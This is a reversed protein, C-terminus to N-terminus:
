QADVRKRKFAETLLEKNITVPYKEKLSEIWNQERQKTALEQYGSSVEPTAEEFSKIHASDLALTKLICWGSQYQFPATVSDVAMQSAKRALDNATFPQLGWVGKKEKYGSRNTYEKAVDLSAAGKRINKYAAKILSDSLTYIEAFNVREPWRYEEKHVNYYERLLSDNVMVKKWVEDQEMRYLLIGEEYEKLLNKLVPYRETAHRAHDELAVVDLMKNALMWINNPTLSYNKLDNMTFLRNAFDHVTFPRESNLIMTMNLVDATLTDKWGEDGSIKNSDVSSIVKLVVSSDMHVHYLAKLGLVYNNNEYQYRVQKYQEKIDKQMEAFSPIGKKETLKFIHFGYNFQVPESISDIKLSYFVDAVKPPIRDREYYGIDGMRSVSQPDQSYKQLMDPFSADAKLKRYVMWATDRVAATDTLGENYRMLIHSIRVSGPNPERDTLKIVHYGFQTRVPTKTYDGVKMAYVADEFEPVMRGASFFGLDGYNTKVSPDESYRVALTDFPVAPLQEIVNKARIFAILTDEPSAKPKVRFIIHSTRLEETKRNYMQQVGPDIVEKELMYSQSVSTNYNEMESIIASDKEMGQARAEKVKLRFKVLLDLFRERDQLSSVASTDWGGNNKAYNEEFEQLTIKEDGITALTPNSAGCGYLFLVFIISIGFILKQTM